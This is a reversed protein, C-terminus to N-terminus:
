VVAVFVLKHCVFVAAIGDQNVWEFILCVFGQGSGETFHIFVECVTTELWFEVDHVILAALCYFFVYAGCFCVNLEDVWVIVADISGFSHYLCPCLM